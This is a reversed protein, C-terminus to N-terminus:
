KGGFIMKLWQGISMVAKIGPSASGVAEFWRAMAEKEPIDLGMLIHQMEKIDVEKNQIESLARASSIQYGQIEEAVRKEIERIDADSKALRARERTINANDLIQNMEADIVNTGGHVGYKVRMNDTTIAAQDAEEGTKRALNRTQALQASQMAIASASNVGRALADEPEVTAASSGPTSAGGQTYALSPNLGAALMDKTARQYATDSMDKMWAQNERQLKINTRNASSQASHGFIGSLLSGGVGAIMAGTVPDVPM